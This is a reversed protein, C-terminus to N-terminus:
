RTPRVHLPQLRTEQVDQLKKKLRDYQRRIQRPQQDINYALNTTELPDNQLDYMEYQSPEVGDVDYYEALKYRQERISIIHNPPAPYPPDPQGSQFDDYTFVVYDQVSKHSPELVLNSYDVGQWDARAHDPADFLGALTPLFDVHSVLASSHYPREYMQPNSYILPVRLTEEYFNFNKQRLGHSMGGEGHDSTQIILTNDLMRRTELTDLIDVLYDDALKMLNGYYNIYNKRDTYTPLPGLGVSFARFQQQATPKTVLSELATSPPEIDGVLWSDDYGNAEYVLPYFLVDHPNVLSVILCFPQQRAAEGNLFDLVGEDGSQVSGNDNMFRGDNDATGGGAQDAAQNAGADPPDWRQFGYKGVDEPVFTSGNAPKSLHWKGKYIVNYGAASMVSAVNKFNTPLEVQYPYQDNPMNEELTYKVGHQAPFFGTMLTARSPSCMCASTCANDFSLGHAKLRQMGPLNEEDWGPPFHQTYRQQDTIFILVNMRPQERQRETTMAAAGQTGIALAPVTVAATKLLDRRTLKRDATM